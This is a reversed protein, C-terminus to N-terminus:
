SQLDHPSDHLPSLTRLPRPRPLPGDCCRTRAHMQQDYSAISTRVVVDSRGLMAYKVREQPM